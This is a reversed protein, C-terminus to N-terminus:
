RVCDFYEEFIADIEACVESPLWASERDTGWAGFVEGRNTDVWVNPGGLAVALRVGRYSGDGGITYEIDLVDNFYSYLDYAEGKEELEEREEDTYDAEYMAIIDNKINEVYEKLDNM